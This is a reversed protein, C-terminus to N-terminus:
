CERKVYMSTQQSRRLTGLKNLLQQQDGNAGDRKGSVGSKKLVDRARERKVMRRIQTRIKRKDTALERSLQESQQMGMGESSRADGENRM